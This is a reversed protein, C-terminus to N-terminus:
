CLLFSQNHRESDAAHKNGLYLNREGIRRIVPEDEVYGIPRVAIESM